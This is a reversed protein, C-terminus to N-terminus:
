FWGGLEDPDFDPDGPMPRYGQMFDQALFRWREPTFVLDRAVGPGKPLRRAHDLFSEMLHPPVIHPVVDSVPYQWGHAPCTVIEFELDWHRTLERHECGEV